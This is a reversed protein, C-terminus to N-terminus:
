TSAIMMMPEHKMDYFTTFKSYRPSVTVSERAQRLIEWLVKYSQVDTSWRPPENEYTLVWSNDRGLAAGTPLERKPGKPRLLGQM